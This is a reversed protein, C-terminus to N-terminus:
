TGEEHVMRHTEEKHFNFYSFLRFRDWGLTRRCHRIAGRVTKLQFLVRHSTGLPEKGEDNPVYAYFRM